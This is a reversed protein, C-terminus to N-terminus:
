LDLPSSTGFRTLWVLNGSVLLLGFFLLLAGGVLNVTQLHRNIRRILGEFHGVLAAAAIFPLGLGACYLLMAPLGTFEHLSAVSLIATLQPGVCPTWGAAFTLGLVFSPLIGTRGPAVGMRYGRMLFGLRLVGLVQLALVIIMAGAVIDVVRHYNALLSVDLASLIYFFLVFIVSFGIVFSLSNVVPLSPSSEVVPTQVTASRNREGGIQAGLYGLYAPLLPFVCPSLFSAMGAAFSLPYSLDIADPTM